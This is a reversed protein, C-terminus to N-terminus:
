SKFIRWRFYNVVLEVDPLQSIRCDFTAMDGILLSFKAGAEGALTSNYKRLKRGFLQENPAFLLSEQQLEIQKKM